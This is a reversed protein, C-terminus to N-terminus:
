NNIKSYKIDNSNTLTTKAASTIPILNANLKSNHQKYHFHANHATTIHDLRGKLHNLRESCQKEDLM